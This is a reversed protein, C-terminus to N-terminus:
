EELPDRHIWDWMAEARDLVLQQDQQLLVGRDILMTSAFVAEELYAAKSRFRSEISPRQDNTHFRESETRALPIYTGYFDDLEMENLAAGHRLCWPAYTALPVMLELTRVGAAENGYRDVQSVLNAYMAGVEPPHKDIIGESWRPGYDMRYAEHMVKPIRVGPIRPFMLRNLRVLSKDAHHPFQSPPPPTDQKVWDILGVLLARLTVLFDLPNGRYSAVEADKVGSIKSQNRPPFSSVFHQGSALHYIRENPFPEIDDNGEVSIHILAAARGWYEYGTNTYF